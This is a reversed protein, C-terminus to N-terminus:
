TLEKGTDELKMILGCIRVKIEKGTIEDMLTEQQISQFQCYQTEREEFSLACYVKDRYPVGYIRGNGLECWRSEKTM